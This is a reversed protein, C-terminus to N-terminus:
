VNNAFVNHDNNIQHLLQTKGRGYNVSVVGPATQTGDRCEVANEQACMGAAQVDQSKLQRTKKCFHFLILLFVFYLYFVKM